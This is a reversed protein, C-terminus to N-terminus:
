VKVIGKFKEVEFAKSIQVHTENDKGENRWNIFFKVVTLRSTKMQFEDAGNAISVTQYYKKIM